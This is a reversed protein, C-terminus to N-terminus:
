HCMASTDLLAPCKRHQPTFSVDRTSPTVAAKSGVRVDAPLEHQLLSGTEAETWALENLEMDSRSNHYGSRLARPLEEYARFKSL